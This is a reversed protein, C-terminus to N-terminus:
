GPHGLVAERAVAVCLADAGIYGRGAGDLAVPDAKRVAM